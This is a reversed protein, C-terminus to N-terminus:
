RCLVFFAMAFGVLILAALILFVFTSAIIGVIAIVVPGVTALPRLYYLLKWWLLISELAIISTLLRNDNPHEQWLLVPIVGALLIYSTLEVGNWFDLAYHWAWKGGKMFHLFGQKIERALSLFTLVMCAVLLSVTLYGKWNGGMNDFSNFKFTGMCYSCVFLIDHM